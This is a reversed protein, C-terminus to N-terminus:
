QQPRNDIVSDSPTTQTVSEMKPRLYEKINSKIGMPLCLATSFGIIIELPLGGSEPVVLRLIFDLVISIATLWMGFKAMKWTRSRYKIDQLDEM